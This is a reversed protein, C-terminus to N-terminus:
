RRIHQTTKRYRMGVSPSVSLCEQHYYSYGGGGVCTIPTTEKRVSDIVIKAKKAAKICVLCASARKKRKNKNKWCSSGKWISGGWIQRKGMRDFHSDKCERCRDQGERSSKWMSCARIKLLLKSKRLALELLHHQRKKWCSVHLTGMRDFHGIRDMTTSYTEETPFLGPYLSNIRLNRCENWKKLSWLHLPSQKTYEGWSSRSDRPHWLSWVSQIKACPWYWCQDDIHQWETLPHHHMEFLLSRCGWFTRYGM